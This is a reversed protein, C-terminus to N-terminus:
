EELLEKFWAVEKRDLASTSVQIDEECNCKDKIETM